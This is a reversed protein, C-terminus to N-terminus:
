QQLYFVGNASFTITIDGGNTPTDTIDLSCIPTSGADNTVFKYITVTGVTSGSAVATWTPDAADFVVRDNTTDSARTKSGLTQDTGIGTYGTMSTDDKNPTVSSATLRAKITDGEWDIATSEGCINLAGQNYVFSAM